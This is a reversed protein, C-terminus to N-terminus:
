GLPAWARLFTFMAQLADSGTDSANLIADGQNTGPFIRLQKPETSWAYLQQVAGVHQTDGHSLLFLKPKALGRLDVETVGFPGASLPASLIIVAVPQLQAALALSLTGGFGAGVLVVSTAGRTRAVAVAARLDRDRRNLDDQGQSLGNGRYDYLLCLYGQSALQEATSHWVVKSVGQDNSFVLATKGSGILQGNLTVGGDTTFYFAGTPPTDTPTPSPDVSLRAPQPACAACAGLVMCFSLIVLKRLLTRASM